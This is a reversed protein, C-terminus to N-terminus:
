VIQSIFDIFEKKFREKSFKKSNDVINKINFKDRINLFKLIANKLASISQEYFLIGTVEDIVTELAGGKGYAIVPTGSAQAEVPVIGFDEEVPFILAQAKSLYEKVINDEQWGLIKINEKAIKKIKKIEEGEGIIILPLKLENFVEVVLDVKKYPVLRSLVLFYEEKKESPSFKDIDVPPYIIKADRRYIKKIRNAVNKSNAIFYDVRNSSIVDWIRLYHFITKLFMSKIGYEIKHDKLYSFYLDWIYRMPTHCYCIHIQYSKTIVGKAVCHSSSIILDYDSLDFQEIAFPMLPLYLFYNKTGFPLYNIFSAKINNKIGLKKLTERSYVLTFIDANPFIEIITQLVKEAGGINVIWDHIIAVKM